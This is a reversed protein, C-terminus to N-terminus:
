PVSVLAPFPQHCPNEARKEAKPLLDAAALARHLCEDQMAMRELIVAVRLELEENTM